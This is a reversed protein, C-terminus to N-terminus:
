VHLNTLYLVGDINDLKHYVTYSMSMYMYTLTALVDKILVKYFSFQYFGCLAFFGTSLSLITESKRSTGLVKWSVRIVLCEQGPLNGVFFLSKNFVNNIFWMTMTPM